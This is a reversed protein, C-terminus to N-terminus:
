GSLSELFKSKLHCKKMPLLKIRAIIIETKWKLIIKKLRIKGQQVEPSRLNENGWQNHNKLISHQTKCWYKYFFLCLSMGNSFCVKQKTLYCKKKKEIFFYCSTLEYTLMIMSLSCVSFQDNIFNESKFSM